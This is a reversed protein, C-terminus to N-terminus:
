LAKWSVSVLSWYDMVKYNASEFHDILWSAHSSGALVVTICDKVPEDTTIQCSRDTISNLDLQLVLKSNLEELMVMLFQLKDGEGLTPLSRPLDEWGPSVFAVSDPSHLAIPLKSPQAHAVQIM